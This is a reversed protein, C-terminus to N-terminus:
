LPTNAARAHPLLIDLSAAPFRVQGEDRDSFCIQMIRQQALGSPPAMWDSALAMTAGTNTIGAEVNIAFGADFRPDLRAGDIVDRVLTFSGTVCGTHFQFWCMDEPNPTGLFSRYHRVLVRVDGNVAVHAGLVIRADASGEYSPLNAQSTTRVLVGNQYIEVYPRCGNKSTNFRPVSTLM